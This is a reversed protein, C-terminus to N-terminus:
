HHDDAISRYVNLVVTSKAAGETAWVVIATSFHKM